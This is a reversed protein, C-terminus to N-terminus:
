KLFETTILNSQNGQVKPLEGNWKEIAMKQLLEKSLSTAEVKNAKAQIEKEKLQLEALEVRSKQELLLKQQEAKAKEVAQEAVKKSEVANEYEDSFDHNMISINSVTLGYKKFDDELDEFILKSIEARKSVFEEITYKAVTSQVVEKVRPRIFRGEHKNKFAKYLKEADTISAQVSFQIKISQMDKTSVELTTDAEETKDFLYSKERTEIKTKKQMFPMKVHLGEQKIATVKGFTSVIAVEGTDVTFISMISFILTVLLLVGLGVLKKIGKEGLM